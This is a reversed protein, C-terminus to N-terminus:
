FHSLMKMLFFLGYSLALQPAFPFSRRGEVEYFSSKIKSLLARCLTFFFSLAMIFLGDFFGTYLLLIALIKADGMGLSNRSVLSLLVFFVLGIAGAILRFIWLKVFLHAPLPLRGNKALISFLFSSLGFIFLALFLRSNSIKCTKEDELAAFVLLIFFIVLPIYFIVM